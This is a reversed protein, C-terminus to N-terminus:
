LQCHEEINSIHAAPNLCGFKHDITLHGVLQAMDAPWQVEIKGKQDPNSGEVKYDTM